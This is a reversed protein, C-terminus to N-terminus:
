TSEWPYPEDLGRPDVDTDGFRVKSGPIAAAIIRVTSEIADCWEKPPTKGDLDTEIRLTDGITVRVDIRSPDVGFTAAM